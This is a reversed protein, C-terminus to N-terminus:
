RLLKDKVEGEAKKAIQRRHNEGEDMFARLTKTHLLCLLRFPFGCFPFCHYSRHPVIYDDIGMFM